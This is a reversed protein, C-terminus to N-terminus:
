YLSLKFPTEGSNLVHKLVDITLENIPLSIVKLNSLEKRIDNSFTKKNKCNALWISWIECKKYKKCNSMLYHYLRQGREETYKLNLSYINALKTYYKVDDYYEIEPIIELDNLDDENDFITIETGDANHLKPSYLTPLDYECAIFKYFSM